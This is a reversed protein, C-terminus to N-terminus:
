GAQRVTFAVVRGDALTGVMGPPTGATAAFDQDFQQETIVKGAADLVRVTGGWYVVVTKDGAPHVFKVIRTDTVNTWTAPADLAPLKRVGGDSETGLLWGDATKVLAVPQAGPLTISKVIKKDAISIRSLSQRGDSAMFTDGEALAPYTPHLGAITGLLTGDATAYLQTGAGSSIALLTKGDASLTLRSYAVGGRYNPAAPKPAPNADIKEWAQLAQQYDKLAKVYQAWGPEITNWRRKGDRSVAIVGADDTGAYLMDGDPSVTLSTIYQPRGDPNVTTDFLQKGAADFAVLHYGGTIALTRSDASAAFNVAEGSHDTSRDWLKKGAADFLTVTGDFTAVAVRGDPLAAMGIARDPVQGSWALAPVPLAQQKVTAPTLRSGAPLTWRTLPQMGSVAEFLTGVAERMGAADFAICTISEVDHGLSDCQWAVYGRGRGPFADKAPQYPLVNMPPRTMPGGAKTQLFPILPNDAPNGLLVVAEPLDYAESVSLKIKATWDDGTARKVEAAPVITAAIHWDKLATALHEAETKDFDSTGTVLTVQHHQKFFRYCKEADDGFTVARPSLGAFAGLTAPQALTFTSTGTTRALLETVEVTWTGPPDNAALPLSLQLQGHATARYLQYRTDGLPDLVRINLPIAGTLPKRDADVVAATIELSLPQARDVYERVVRTGTVAVGTIPRATRAFIRMQGPGFRFTGSVATGKKAFGAPGGLMADYVPRGDAPLSLSATTGRVTNQRVVEPDTRMNVAFLYEVDGEAQARGLIDLSDCGYVPNVGYAALKVRLDKALQEVNKMFNHTTYISRDRNEIAKHFTYDMQLGLKKAGNIQVTCENDLLVVGGGAIYDELASIVKPDLYEVKSLIVVKHNTALTGDLVDEEVVPCLPTQNRMSAAYFALTSRIHGNANRIDKMDSRIESEIGQSLSYLIAAQSRQVPMTTFITGLRLMTKNDEVVGAMGPDVSPTWAQYGPWMMGQLNQIFSMNQEMRTHALNMVWWTPMYWCPRNWDRVRGFDSAMPPAMNLWYVDSYWGHGNIVPLQRAINFYYGDSFADWGYMTQTATLWDPRVARVGASVEKWCAEMFGQKWVNMARWRARAADDKVQFYQQADEGFMGKWARDQAAINYPNFEKTVPHENWTLGPEDYFHVGVCNPSTRDKLAERSARLRGERLVWPDSWDNNLNGDLQHAGGLAMGRMWDIGGRITADGNGQTYTLNYGMSDEGILQQPRGEPGSHAWDVIKFTSKRLHSFVEFTGNATAGACAVQVTYAGPRLLRGDLHLHETAVATGDTVAVAAVPFNASLRSGDAGTLTLSLAGAPLAATGSRVVALDIWENTQYCTRALPWLLRLEAARSALSSLLVLACATCLLLHYRM